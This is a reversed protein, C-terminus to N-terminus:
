GGEAAVPLRPHVRYITFFEGYRRPELFGPVPSSTGFNLGIAMDFHHPWDGWYNRMAVDDLTGLMAQGKIPDAGEALSALSIPYGQPTDIVGRAPAAHVPMMSNKFLYPLFADREIVALMPLHLYVTLPGRRAPGDDERFALVRAGPDIATMATRFEQYQRDMPQWAAAISVMEGTLCLVLAAAAGGAVCNPLRRWQCSACFLFVFVVPLRRDIGWVGSLWEPMALCVMGLALLPLRMAGALVLRRTFFGWILGALLALLVLFFWPGPFPSPLFSVLALLKNEVAGYRTLGGAQGRTIMLALLCPLGAAAAPVAMRRVFGGLTREPGHYWLGLDYAGACLAFGFLAFFHCIFVLMALALGGVIRWVAGQGSLAIWGAFALLWLGIALLYNAFGLTFLLNYAFLAVAAPVLSLRRFLAANIAAAGLVFLSLCILLFVRGATYISMFRALFPVFLDMGLYPAFTWAVSYNARLAESDPYRALVHMRALHNLYDGLPPITVACLPVALLALILGYVGARIWFARETLWARM